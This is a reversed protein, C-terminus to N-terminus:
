CLFLLSLTRLFYQVSLFFFCVRVCKLMLWVVIKAFMTFTAVQPMGGAPPVMASDAAGTDM